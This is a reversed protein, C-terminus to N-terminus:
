NSRKAFAALVDAVCSTIREACAIDLFENPGHANANPGLVGTVLFAVDPFRDGLMKMFPITGGTGMYRAAAGFHRRSAADAAASLWAPTVPSYWGSEASGLTFTVTAGHPPDRALETALYRAAEAADIVPPLRVSLKVATWPLLTNGAAGTEPLGDAGTISLTPRWTSALLSEVTDDTMPQTGGAWPFRAHVTGGLTAAVDRAQDEVGPPLVCHLPPAMRGSGADEIRDLLQRVIRFSSPVIGSAMGSHVGETLVDVRLVGTAVGRLSTTVWLRDYSGAEADLCIVLEPTGIRTSLADLYAPLDPSGSEESGEILLFCRPRPAQHAVLAAIATLSAPLAYGDDAGGRGYLRGNELVPQWPGLGPRWGNFEPQKDYHGYLLVNGPATGPVDVCITPTRGSLSVVDVTAGEIQQARAWNALLEAARQMHGHAAWQPDFMPSKNPIRIYDALLPVIREAFADHIFHNAM